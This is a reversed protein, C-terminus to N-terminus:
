GNHAQLPCDPPSDRRISDTYLVSSMLSLFVEHHTLKDLDRRDRDTLQTLDRCMFRAKVESYM